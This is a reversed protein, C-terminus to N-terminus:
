WNGPATCDRFFCGFLYANSPYSRIRAVGDQVWTVKCADTRWEDAV